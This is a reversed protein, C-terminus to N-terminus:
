TPFHYKFFKGKLQFELGYRRVGLGRSELSGRWHLHCWQTGMDWVLTGKVSLQDQQSTGILFILMFTIVEMSKRVELSM